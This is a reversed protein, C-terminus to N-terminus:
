GIHRRVFLQTEDLMLNNGSHQIRCWRTSRARDYLPEAAFNLSRKPLGIKLLLEFFKTERRCPTRGRLGARNRFLFQLLPM